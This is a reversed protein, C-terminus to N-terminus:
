HTSILDHKKIASSIVKRNKRETVNVIQTLGVDEGLVKLYDNMKQNSPIRWHYDKYRDIIEMVTPHLPIIVETQTKHTVVKLLHDNQYHFNSKFNHWDEFRLGTHCALVFLDKKFNQRETGM